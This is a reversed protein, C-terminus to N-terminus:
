MLPTRGKADRANIDAGQALMTDFLQTFGHAASMAFATEGDNNTAAMNFTHKLCFAAADEHHAAIAQM